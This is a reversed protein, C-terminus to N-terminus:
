PGVRHLECTVWLSACKGCVFAFSQPTGVAPIGRLLKNPGFPTTGDLAIDATDPHWVKLCSVWLEKETVDAVELEEKQTHISEESFVFERVIFKNERCKNVFEDRVRRFIVVSFLTYEEDSALSRHFQTRIWNTPAYYDM